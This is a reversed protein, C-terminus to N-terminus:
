RAGLRELLPIARALIEREDAQLQGLLTETFADRREATEDVVAHGRRTLTLNVRRGDGRDTSRTVYGCEELLNLTRNMSPPTVCEREALEGPTRALGHKLAVLVSLQGDSMGPVARQSRLRRSLRLVAMRLDHAQTALDDSSM